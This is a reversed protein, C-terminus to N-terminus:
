YYWRITMVAQTSLGSASVTSNFGGTAEADLSQHMLQAEGGLSFHRTFYHQAGAMGIVYWGDISIKPPPGFPSTFETSGKLIGARAGIYPRLQEREGTEMLLGLGVRWLSTETENTGEQQSVRALGIEPEFLMNGNRIPFLLVNQGLAIPGTEPDGGMFTLPLLSIGIGIRAKREAQQAEQAEMSGAAVLLLLGAGITRVM